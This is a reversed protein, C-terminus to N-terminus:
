TEWDLLKIPCIPRGWCSFSSRKSSVVGDTISLNIYIWPRWSSRVLTGFNPRMDSWTKSWHMNNKVPFSRWPICVVLIHNAVRTLLNRSVQQILTDRCDGTKLAFTAYDIIEPSLSLWCNDVKFQLDINQPATLLLSRANHHHRHSSWICHVNTNSFIQSTSIIHNKGSISLMGSMLLFFMRSIMQHSEQHRQTTMPKKILYIGHHM